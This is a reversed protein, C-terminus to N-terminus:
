QTIERAIQVNDGREAHPSLKFNMQWDGSEYIIDHTAELKWASSSGFYLLIYMFEQATIWLGHTRVM